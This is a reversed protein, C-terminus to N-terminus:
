QTNGTSEIIMVGEVHNTTNNDESLGFAGLIAEANNGVFDGEIFGSADRAPSVTSPDADIVSASNLLLDLRGSNLQGNYVAVWTDIPTSGSSTNVTLAGNTVAGTSFNVDMQAQINNITGQSSNTLSHSVNNYTVTGTKDSVIDSNTADYGVWILQNNTIPSQSTNTSHLATSLPDGWSGWSVPYGGVSSQFNSVSGSGATLLNSGVQINPTATSLSSINAPTQQSPNSQSLVFGSHGNQTPPPSNPDLVDDSSDSGVYSDTGGTDESDNSGNQQGKVKPRKKFGRCQGSSDIFVFQFAESGGILMNCGTAISSRLHIKGAWVAVHMGSPVLNIEFDTGRIGITALPTRLEYDKKNKKGIAGTITRFGGSILEMIASDKSSGQNFQYEKIKLVTNEQLSIIARDKMRFQAKAGKGVHIEDKVFLASRRKLPINGNARKAFVKGKALLTKGAVQTKAQVFSPLLLLLCFCLFSVFTNITFHNGSM